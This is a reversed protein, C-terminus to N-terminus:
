LPDKIQKVSKKIGKILWSIILGFCIVILSSIISILLLVLVPSINKLMIDIYNTNINITTVVFTHILYFIFSNEGLLCILNQIKNNKLNIIMCSLFIGLSSILIPVTNYLSYPEVTYKPHEIRIYNGKAFFTCAIFGVIFLIVGYKKAINELKNNKHLLYLEYGLLVYLVYYMDFIELGYSPFFHIGFFMEITPFCFSAIFTILMIYRRVTTTKEDEKCILQLLPYLVYIGALLVIYWLHFSYGTMDHLKWQFLFKSFAQMYGQLMYPEQVINIILGLAWVVGSPILYISIFKLWLEKLTKEKRFMFFGTTLIFLPVCSKIIYLYSYGMTDGIVFVNHHVAVVLFFGIMKILDLQYIRNKM